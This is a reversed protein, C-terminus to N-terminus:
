AYLTPRPDWTYLKSYFQGPSIKLGKLLSFVAKDGVENAMDVGIGKQSEQLYTFLKSNTLM